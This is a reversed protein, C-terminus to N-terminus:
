GKITHQEHIYIVARDGITTDGLPLPEGAAELGALYDQRCLTLAFQAAQPTAGQARCGPLRPHWAEWLGGGGEVRLQRVYIIYHEAM